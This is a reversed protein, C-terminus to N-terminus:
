RKGIGDSGEKKMGDGNLLSEYKELIAQEILNETEQNVPKCIDVITGNQLKKKPFGIRVGGETRSFIALDGIWISDNIVLTAFGLHGDRPRFPIIEVQSIQIPNRKM